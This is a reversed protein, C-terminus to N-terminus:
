NVVGIENNVVMIAAFRVDGYKDLTKALLDPSVRGLSDIPILGIQRGLRELTRLNETVSSHEAASAIVRGGGQRAILSYLPLCNSETGGSTFYVTEPSVGLISACRARANELVDHAARGEMHPSSPNAFPPLASAEPLPAIAEPLATAAWDFYHRHGSFNPNM